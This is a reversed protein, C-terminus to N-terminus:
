LFNYFIMCTKEDGNSGDEDKLEIYDFNVCYPEHDYDHNM